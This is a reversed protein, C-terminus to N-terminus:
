SSKRGGRVKISMCELFFNGPPWFGPQSAGAQERPERSCETLLAVKFLADYIWISFFASGVKSGGM